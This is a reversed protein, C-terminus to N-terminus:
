RVALSFRMEDLFFFLSQQDDNRSQLSDGPSLVYKRLMFAAVRRDAAFGEVGAEAQAEKHVFCVAAGVLGASARRRAEMLAGTLPDRSLEQNTRRHPPSLTCLEATGSSSAKM